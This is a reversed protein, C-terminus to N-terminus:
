LKGGSPRKRRMLLAGVTILVFAIVALKAYDGGTFPLASGSAAKSGDGSSGSQGSSTFPLTSSGSTSPLNSSAVVTPPACGVYCSQVPAEVVLPPPPPPPPPTYPLAALVPPPAVFQKDGDKRLNEQIWKDAALEADTLKVRGNLHGNDANVEYTPPLTASQGKENTVVVTHIVSIVNCDNPKSCEIAFSTGRVAATAGGAEVEFSGSRSLKTVRNWVKGVTVAGLAQRGGSNSTLSVVKFTTNSDLRTLSGDPYNVQGLGTADTALLQGPAISEGTHAEVSPSGGSTDSTRVHTSSVKLKGTSSPSSSCAAAVLGVVLLAAGIRATRGTRRPQIKKM